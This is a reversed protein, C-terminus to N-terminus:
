FGIVDDPRTRVGPLEVGAVGPIQWGRALLADEFARAAERQAQRVAELVEPNVVERSELVELRNTAVVYGRMLDLLQQDSMWSGM